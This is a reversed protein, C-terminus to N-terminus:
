PSPSAVLTTFTVPKTNTLALTAPSRVECTVQYLGPSINTASLYALTQIDNGVADPTSNIGNRWTPLPNNATARSSHWLFYPVTTRGTYGVLLPGTILNIASENRSEGAPGDRVLMNTLGGGAQIAGFLEGAIMAARTEQASDNRIKLAAPLLGLIGVAVFAFIGIAVTIEVLSFGSASSIPLQSNLTSPQPLGSDMVPKIHNPKM